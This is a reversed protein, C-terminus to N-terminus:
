GIMIRFRGRATAVTPSAAAGNTATVYLEGADVRRADVCRRRRKWVNARPAAKARATATGLKLQLRRKGLREQSTDGDHHTGVSECCGIRHQGLGLRNGGNARHIPQRQRALRAPAKRAGSSPANTRVRQLRATPPTRTTPVTTGWSGNIGFRVTASYNTTGSNVDKVFPVISVYVDGNASVADQLQTLLNKTATKLADLKGDDDM